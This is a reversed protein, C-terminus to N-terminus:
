SVVVIAFPHVKHDTELVIRRPVSFGLRENDVTGDQVHISDPAAHEILHSGAVMLISFPIAGSSAAEAAMGGEGGIRNTGTCIARHVTWFCGFFPPPTCPSKEKTFRFM